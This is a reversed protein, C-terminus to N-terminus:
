ALSDPRSRLALARPHVHPQQTFHKSPMNNYHIGVYKFLERASALADAACNCCKQYLGSVGFPKKCNNDVAEDTLMAHTVCASVDCAWAGGAFDFVCTCSGHGCTIGDM